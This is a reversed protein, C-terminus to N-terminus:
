MLGVIPTIIVGQFNSHLDTKKAMESDLKLCEGKMIRVTSPKSIM